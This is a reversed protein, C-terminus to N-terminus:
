LSALKQKFHRGDKYIVSLFFVGMKRLDKDPDKKLSSAMKTGLMSYVAVEKIKGSPIQRTQGPMGPISIIQYQRTWANEPNEAPAPSKLGYENYVNRSERNQETKSVPGEGAMERAPKGEPSNDDTEGTHNGGSFVNAVQKKAETISLGSLWGSLLLLLVTALVLKVVTNPYKMIYLDQVPNLCVIM